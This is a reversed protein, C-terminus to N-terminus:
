FLWTTLILPLTLVLLTNPILILSKQLPFRINRLTKGNMPLCVGSPGCDCYNFASTLDYRLGGGNAATSLVMRPASFTFIAAQHTCILQDNNPLLFNRKM